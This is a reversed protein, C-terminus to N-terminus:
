TPKQVVLPDARVNDSLEVFPVQASLWKPDKTIGDMSETTNNCILYVGKALVLFSEFGTGVGYHAFEFDGIAYDANMLGARLTGADAQFNKKFGDKRPGIYALVHGPHEALSVIAWEDFVLKGYRAHMQEACDKILKKAQDLTMFDTTGAAGFFAIGPGALLGIRPARAYTGAELYRSFRGNAM